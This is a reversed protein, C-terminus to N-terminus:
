IGNESVQVCAHFANVASSGENEMPFQINTWVCMLWIATAGQQAIELALVFQWMTGHVRAVHWRTDNVEGLSKVQVGCSWQTAKTAAAHFTVHIAQLSPSSCDAKMGSLAFLLVVPERLPRCAWIESLNWLFLLKHICLLLTLHFLLVNRCFTCAAKLYSWSKKERLANPLVLGKQRGKSIVGALYRQSVALLCHKTEKM